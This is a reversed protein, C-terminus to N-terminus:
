FYGTLSVSHSALNGGSTVKQFSYDVSFSSLDLGLGVSAVKQAWPINDLFGARFSVGESFVYEAGASWSVADIDGPVTYQAADVDGLKRIQGSIMLGGALKAEAGVSIQKTQLQSATKLLNQGVVGLIIQPSLM